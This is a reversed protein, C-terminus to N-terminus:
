HTVTNQQVADQDRQMKQDKKKKSDTNLEKRNPFKRKKENTEATFM